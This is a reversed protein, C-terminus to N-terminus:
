SVRVYFDKRSNDSGSGCRRKLMKKMLSVNEEWSHVAKHPLCKGGYLPLIEKHIHKANLGKPWLIRLVSCQQETTYEELVTAM